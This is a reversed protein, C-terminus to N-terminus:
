TGVGAMGFQKPGPEEDRFYQAHLVTHKM